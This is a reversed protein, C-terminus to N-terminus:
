QSLLGVQFHIEQLTKNHEAWLNWCISLSSSCLRRFSVDVIFGLMFGWAILEISDLSRVISSQVLSRMEDVARRIEFM